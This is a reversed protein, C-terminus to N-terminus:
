PQVTTSEHPTHRSCFFPQANPPTTTTCGPCYGKIKCVSCQKENSLGIVQWSHGFTLYDAPTLTVTSSSHTTIHHPPQKTEQIPDGWLNQQM